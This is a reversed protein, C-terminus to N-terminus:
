RGKGDALRIRAEYTKQWDISSSTGPVMIFLKELRASSSHTRGTTIKEAASKWDTVPTEPKRGAAVAADAARQAAHDRATLNASDRPIFGKGDDAHQRPDTAKTTPAWFLGGRSSALNSLCLSFTETNFARGKMWALIKAANTYGPDGTLVLVKGQRFWWAGFADKQAQSLASYQADYQAQASSKWRFQDDMIRFMELVSDRTIQVQPNTDFYVAIREGNHIADKREDGDGVILFKGQSRLQKEVQEIIEIEKESIQRM